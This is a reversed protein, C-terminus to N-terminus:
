LVAAVIVKCGNIVEEKLPQLLIAVRLRQGAGTQGPLRSGLAAIETTKLYLTVEELGTGRGQTTGRNHTEQESM